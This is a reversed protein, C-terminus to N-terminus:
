VSPTVSSSKLQSRPARTLGATISRSALLWGAVTLLFYAIKIDFLLSFLLGCQILILILSQTIRAPSPIPLSAASQPFEPKRRPTQKQDTKPSELGTIRQGEGGELLSSDNNQSEFKQRRAGSNATTSDLM